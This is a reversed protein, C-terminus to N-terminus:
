FHNQSLCEHSIYLYLYLNVRQEMLHAIQALLRKEASQIRMNIVIAAMPNARADRRMIDIHRQLRSLENYICSFGLHLAELTLCFIETTFGFSVENEKEDDVNYLKDMCEKLEHSDCSLRTSDQWTMYHETKKILFYRSDIKNLMNKKIIPECLKLMVYNLNLMFGDRSVIHHDFRMKGRDLNIYIFYSLLRLVNEKCKKNKIRVLNNFITYVGNQLETMILRYEAFASQINQQLMPNQQIGETSLKSFLGAIDITEFSLNLFGGLVSHLVITNANIKQHKITGITLGGIENPIWYPKTKDMLFLAFKELTSLKILANMSSNFNSRLANLSTNKIMLMTKDLTDSISDEDIQEFLEINVIFLCNNM